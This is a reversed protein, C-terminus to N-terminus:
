EKQETANSVDPRTHLRLMAEEFRGDVVADFVHGGEDIAREIEATDSASPKKLVYHVVESAKGPHGIGLRMRVFDRSGGLARAVDRLGNHGALGGGVKLRAIGPALDLEDHAILIDSPAIKFFGACAGVSKGSENMYTDPLLFKVDQGGVRHSALHGFFKKEQKFTLNLRRAIAHVFWAGANHRTNAYKEGPNQLGVVLQITM